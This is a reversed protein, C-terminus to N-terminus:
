LRSVQMSLLDIPLPLPDPRWAVNPNTLTFRYLDSGSRWAAGTYMVLAKHVTNQGIDGKESLAFGRVKVEAMALPLGICM